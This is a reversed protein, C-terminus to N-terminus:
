VVHQWEEPFHVHGVNGLAFYNAEAFDRSQDLYERAAQLNLFTQGRLDGLRNLLCNVRLADSDYDFRPMEAHHHAANLLLMRSGHRRRHKAAEAVLLLCPRFKERQDTLSRIPCLPRRLETTESDRCPKRMQTDQNCCIGFNVFRSIRRDREFTPDKD